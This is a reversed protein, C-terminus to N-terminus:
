TALVTRAVGYAQEKTALNEKNISVHYGELFGFMVAVEIDETSAYFNGDKTKIWGAVPFNNKVLYEIVEFELRVDDIVAKKSVRLIKKDKEGICYVINDSSEHILVVPIKEPINYQDLIKELKNEM